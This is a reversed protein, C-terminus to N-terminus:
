EGRSGGEIHRVSDSAVWSYPLYLTGLHKFAGHLRTIEVGIAVIVSPFMGSGYNEQEVLPIYKVRKHLFVIPHDHCPRFWKTEVRAPLLMIIAEARGRDYELIAKDVWRGPEAARSHPPNLFVTGVWNQKLGDHIENYHFTAPVNYSTGDEPFESAPDLDIRGGLAVQATQWLYEPTGWEDILNM